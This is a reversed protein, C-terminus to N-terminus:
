TRWDDETEKMWRLLEEGEAPGRGPSTLLDAAAQSFAVCTLGDRKSTRAFAVADLPRLLLVNAGSEVPRLDLLSASEDPDRVYIMALRPPSVSTPIQAALSGTVAYRLRISSLKENLATLGRPELFNRVANAQLVSYDQTWRRILGEWSVDTIRGRGEKTLLAERELFNVVRSTTPISAGSRKALESTSYPPRLDCLARIVRSVARGKLSKLPKAERWPNKTAGAAEFFVAPQQTVLRLNGTLDAYSLRADALLERTRPSLFPAAVLVTEFNSLAAQRQLEPVMRPEVATKVEIAVVGFRGDPSRLTITADPRMGGAVPGRELRLAWDEPLRKALQEELFRILSIENKLMNRM